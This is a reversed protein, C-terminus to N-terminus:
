KNEKLLKEIHREAKQIVAVVEGLTKLRQSHRAPANTVWDKLLSELTPFYGGLTWQKRQVSTKSNTRRYYLTYNNDDIVIKANEDIKICQEM